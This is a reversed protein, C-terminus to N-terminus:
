TKKYIPRSLVIKKRNRARRQVVHSLFPSPYASVAAYMPLAPSNKITGTM